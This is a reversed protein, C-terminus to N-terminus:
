NTLVSWAKDMWSGKNFPGKGSNGPKLTSANALQSTIHSACQSASGWWACNAGDTSMCQLEGSGTIRSPVYGNSSGVEATADICQWDGDCAEEKELSDCQKGLANPKTLITRTSRRRGGVCKSPASWESLVCDLPCDRTEETAGCPKGDSNGQTKITRTFKQKGNVCSGAVWDSMVCDIPKNCAKTEVTDLWSCEKEPDDSTVTRKRSKLFKDQEEDFECATWEGWKSATCTPFGLWTAKTFYGYGVVAGAGIIAILLLNGTAMNVILLLFIISVDVLYAWPDVAM